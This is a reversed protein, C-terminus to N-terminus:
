VSWSNYKVMCAKYPMQSQSMHLYEALHAVDTM